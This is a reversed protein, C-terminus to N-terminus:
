KGFGFVHDTILDELYFIDDEESSPNSGHYTVGGSTGAISPLQMTPNSSPHFGGDSTGPISPLQLSDVRFGGKPAGMTSEFSNKAGSGSAIGDHVGMHALVLPLSTTNATPSVQTSGVLQNTMLEDLSRVKIVPHTYMGSGGAVSPQQHCAGSTSEAPLTILDKISLLFEDVDPFTSNLESGVAAGLPFKEPNVSPGETAYNTVPGPLSVMGTDFAETVYDTIPWQSLETTDAANVSTIDHISRGRKVKNNDNLRSFFKQAHSAVQRPTRSLVCNSSINRWDGKGYKELGQLFLRHEEATWPIGKRREVVAGSSRSRRSSSSQMKGYQPLPVKGSEIDNVDEVLDNYHQTIEQLSKQPVAAAIKMLLDSDGFYIALATEFAKDEEKTWASSSCTRNSSM